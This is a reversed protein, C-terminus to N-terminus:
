GDVVLLRKAHILGSSWGNLLEPVEAGAMPKAYLYGQANGCGM